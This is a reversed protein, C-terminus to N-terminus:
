KRKLRKSRKKVFADGGNIIDVATGIASIIILDDSVDLMEKYGVITNCNLAIAHQRMEERVACWWSDIEGNTTKLSILKVSRASVLSVYRM